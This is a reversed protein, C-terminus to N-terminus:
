NTQEAYLASNTLAGNIAERYLYIVFQLAEEVAASRVLVEAAGEEKRSAPGAAEVLDSIQM